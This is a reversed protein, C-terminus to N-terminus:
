DRPLLPLGRLVGFSGLGRETGVGGRQAGWPPRNGTVLATVCCPDGPIDSNDPSVLTVPPHTPAGMETPVVRPSVLVPCSPFCPLKQPNFFLTPATGTGGTGGTRDRTARSRRLIGGCPCLRQWLEGWQGSDTAGHHHSHDLPTDGDWPLCSGKGAMPQWRSGAAPGTGMAAGTGTGTGAASDWPGGQGGAEGRSGKPAGASTGGSTARTGVDGSCGWGRGPGHGLAMWPGTQPCQETGPLSPAPPPGTGAGPERSGAGRAERCPRARACLDRGATGRSQSRVFGREAAASLGQCGARGGEAGAM